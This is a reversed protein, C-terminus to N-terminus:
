NIHMCREISNERRVLFIRLFTFAWQSPMNGNFEWANRYAFCHIIFKIRMLTEGWMQGGLLVLTVTNDVEVNDDGGYVVVQHKKNM